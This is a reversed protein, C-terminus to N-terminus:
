AAALAKVRASLRSVKRSATNKHLVGKTVGRMIEPQAARLADTAKAADGSAIAEEVKRLYTRIRSRRAKNVATRREAQRIRKRASPSNAM